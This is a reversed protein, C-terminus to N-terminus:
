RDHSFHFSFTWAGSVDVRLASSSWRAGGPPAMQDRLMEWCMSITGPFNGLDEGAPEPLVRRTTLMSDAYFIFKSSIWSFSSLSEFAARVVATRAAVLPDADDEAAPITVIGGFYAEYAQCPIGYRYVRVGVSAQPLDAPSGDDYSGVQGGGTPPTGHVQVHRGSADTVGDACLRCLYNPYRPNERTPSACLPCAQQVDM